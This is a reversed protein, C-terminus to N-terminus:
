QLCSGRLASGLRLHWFGASRFWSPRTPSCTCHPRFGLMTVAAYRPGVSWDLITWEASPVPEVQARANGQWPDYPVRHLAYPSPDWRRGFAQLSGERCCERLTRLIQLIEDPMELLLDPDVCRKVAEDDRHRVWAVCEALTWYHDQQDMHSLSTGLFCADYVQPSKPLEM